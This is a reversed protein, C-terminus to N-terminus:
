TRHAPLVECNRCTGNAEGLAELVAGPRGPITSRAQEARGWLSQESAQTATPSLLQSTHCGAGKSCRQIRSTGLSLQRPWEGQGAVHVFGELQLSPPLARASHPLERKQPWAKPRTGPTTHQKSTPSM